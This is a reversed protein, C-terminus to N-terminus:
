NNENIRYDIIKLQTSTFGNFENIQPYYILDVDLPNNWPNEVIDKYRVGYIDKMEELFEKGIGFGLANIRKNSQPVKCIIKLTNEDKGLIKIGEVKINKEAMIPSPNEKGFPELYELEKILDMNIAKLPVRKDIRIKPIFEERKLKCNSNLKKRLKDINKEEITLGAAMPHGGFKYICEKCKILEEFLNYGEISRGSGKPMDKGKTIIITPLNYKEKIRGAVIGAISEDIDKNYVVLIKDEKLSSSEILEITEEVSESTMKQRENNLEKLKRALVKAKEKDKCLFLEASISATELRGTANICPGIMFGIHYSKIVKEELGIEKILANLGINKTNNIYELGTKAIIRNEDKLDVVDCITGIAAFQVLELYKSFDGKIKEYIVKAFKLAIGAGCLMEFPYKCEKQKPNVIADADPVIYERNGENENFPLEHHDTVIVTMGLEKAKKIADIASIGNDCTLIVEVGDKKLKEVRESCMGYGENKRDPIYYSVNAGCDKLATYLIVTSTVGDADYDGYVVINKNEDIAKKIIETGKDMDKMLFSDYVNEISPDIFNKIDTPKYVGRNVLINITIESLGTLKSILKTDIKKRKLM